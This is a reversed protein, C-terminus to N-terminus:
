ELEEGPLTSWWSPLDWPEAESWRPEDTLYARGHPFDVFVLRWGEFGSVWFWEM